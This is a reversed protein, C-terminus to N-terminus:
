IYRYEFIYIHLHSACCSPGAGHGVGGRMLRVGAVGVIVALAAPVDGDGVPVVGVVGVVPVHVTHMLIVHVLALGGPVGLVVTVLVLVRVTAPMDGDGVPVMDVVDVVPVPVSGVGAVPVLV